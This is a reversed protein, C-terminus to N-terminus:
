DVLRYYRTDYREVLGKEILSRLLRYVHVRHKNGYDKAVTGSTITLGRSQRRRVIKYVAAEANGLREKAPNIKM